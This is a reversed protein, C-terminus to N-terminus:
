GRDRVWYGVAIAVLMGALASTAEGSLPPYLDAFVNGWIETGAAAVSAGTVLKRTPWASPANKLTM